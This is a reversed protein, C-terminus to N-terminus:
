RRMRLSTQPELPIRPQQVHPTKQPHGTSRYRLPRTTEECELRGLNIASLLFLADWRNRVRYWAKLPCSTIPTCSPHPPFPATVVASTELPKPPTPRMIGRWLRVNSSRSNMCRSELQMRMVLFPCSSAYVGKCRYQLVSVLGFFRLCLFSAGLFPSCSNPRLFSPQLVM